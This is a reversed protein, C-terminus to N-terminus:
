PSPLYFREGEYRYGLNSVANDREASSTTYFHEGRGYMRYVPIPTVSESVYFKIGHYVYGLKNVANDRETADTTYFHNGTSYLRYVPKGITPSAYFAIVEYRWGKNSMSMAEQVDITYFHDNYRDSLLRYVPALSAASRPALLTEYKWGINALRMADRTNAIYRHTPTTTGIFRYVLDTSEDTYFKIGQNRYGFRSVANDREVPSTTYLFDGDGQLRYVPTGTGASNATTLVGTYQYGLNAM